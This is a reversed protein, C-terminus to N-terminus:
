YLDDHYKMNEYEEDLFCDFNDYDNGDFGNITQRVYEGFIEEPFENYDKLKEMIEDPVYVDITIKLTAM